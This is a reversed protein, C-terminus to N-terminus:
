SNHRRRIIAVLKDPSSGPDLRTDTSLMCGDTETRQLRVRGSKGEIQPIHVDDRGVTESIAIFAKL